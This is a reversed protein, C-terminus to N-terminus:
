FAMNVTLGIQNTSPIYTPCIIVQEDRPLTVEELKSMLEDILGDAEDFSKNMKWNGAVIHKRM